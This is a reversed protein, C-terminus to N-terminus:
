GVVVTTLAIGDDEIALGDSPLKGHSGTQPPRHNKWVGANNTL